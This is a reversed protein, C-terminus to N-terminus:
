EFGFFNRQKKWCLPIRTARLMKRATLLPPQNGKLIATVIDPALFKLRAVRVLHPKESRTIATGSALKGYAAEAKAILGVLKSDVCVPAIHESKAFILRLEQGRRAIRMPISIFVSASECSM